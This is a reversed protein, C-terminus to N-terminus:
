KKMVYEGILKNTNTRIKHMEIKYGRNRLDNIRSPLRICNFRKLAELQTLSYGQELWDAIMACQSRASMENDNINAM